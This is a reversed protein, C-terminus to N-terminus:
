VDVRIANIAASPIVRDLAAAVRISQDAARVIVADDAVATVIGFADQGTSGNCVWSSSDVEEAQLSGDRAVGAPEGDDAGVDIRQGGTPCREGPPEQGIAVLSATGVSAGEDSSCAMSTGAVTLWLACTLVYRGPRYALPASDLRTRLHM